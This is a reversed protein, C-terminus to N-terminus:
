EIRSKHIEVKAPTRPAIVKAPTRDIGTSIVPRYSSINIAVPTIKTDNTTATNTNGIKSPPFTRNFLLWTSLSTKYALPKIASSAIPLRSFICFLM